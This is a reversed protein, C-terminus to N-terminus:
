LSVCQETKTTTQNNDGLPLIRNKVCNLSQSQNKRLIIKGSNNQIDISGVVQNRVLEARNGGLIEINGAIRNEMLDVGGFGAKATVNGSVQSRKLTLSGQPQVEINGHIKVNDLICKQTVLVNRDITENRLHGQCTVVDAFSISSVLCSLLFLTTRM